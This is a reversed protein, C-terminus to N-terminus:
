SRFLLALRRSRRTCTDNVAPRGPLSGSTDASRIDSIVFDVSDDMRMKRIRSDRGEGRTMTPAALHPRCGDRPTRGTRPVWSAPRRLARHSSRVGGASAFYETVRRIEAATSSPSEHRSWIGRRGPKRSRDAGAFVGGKPCTRSALGPPRTSAWRPSRVVRFSLQEAQERLLGAIGSLTTTKGAGNRGLLAIISGEPVELSLEHVVRIPGYGLCVGNIELM